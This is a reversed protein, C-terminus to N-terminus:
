IGYRNGWKKYKDKKRNYIPYKDVFKSGYRHYYCSKYQRGPVIGADYSETNSYLRMGLRRARPLLRYVIGYEDLWVPRTRFLLDIM